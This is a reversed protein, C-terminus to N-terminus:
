SAGGWGAGGGRGWGGGGAGCGGGGCACGGGANVNEINPNSIVFGSRMLGDLYDIEAGELLPASVSDVVVKINFYELVIDDEKPETEVGLVHQFGGNPTPTLMVRLMGNDQGQEKLIETLKTAASETVNLMKTTAM